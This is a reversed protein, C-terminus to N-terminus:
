NAIPPKFVSRLTGSPVREAMPMALVERASLAPLDIRAVLLAASAGCCTSLHLLADWVGREDAPKSPTAQDMPAQTVLGSAEGDAHVLEHLAGVSALVPQVLLCLALLALFLARLPRLPSRM